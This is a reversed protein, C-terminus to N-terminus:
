FIRARCHLAISHLYQNSVGADSFVHEVWDVIVETNSLDHKERISKPLVLTSNVDPVVTSLFSWVEEDYGIVHVEIAQLHCQM